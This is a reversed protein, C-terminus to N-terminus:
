NESFHGLWIWVLPSDGPSRGAKKVTSYLKAAKWVTWHFHVLKKSFSSWVLWFGVLTKDVQVIERYSALNIIITNDSFQIIEAHNSPSPTSPIICTLCTVKVWISLTRFGDALLCSWRINQAPVKSSTKLLHLLCVFISFRKLVTM